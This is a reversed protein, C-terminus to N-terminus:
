TGAHFQRQCLICQVFPFIKHFSFNNLLRSSHDMYSFLEMTYHGQTLVWYNSLHDLSGSNENGDKCGV